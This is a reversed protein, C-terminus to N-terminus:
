GNSAKQRVIYGAKVWHEYSQQLHRSLVRPAVQLLKPTVRRSLRSPRGVFDESQQTSWCLPNLLPGKMSGELMYLAIHHLAHHKPVLLWLCQHNSVALRALLSYKRLFTLCLNGANRSETRSMFAGFSYVLRLFDNAATAAEGALRYMESWGHGETKFRHEVWEMPVTTVAGKHWGGSPYTTTSPWGVFEKSLKAIHPNKHHEKCYDLFLSSLSDFREDVSGEPQLQSLIAIFSSLFYKGVGLHWCHFLDFSWLSGTEGPTHPIRVLPSPDWNGHLDQSHMTPRWRPQDTNLEEFDFGLQGSRCLHCIGLPVRQQRRHKQVNRYSREMYGSDALFPWDGSISLVAFTFQGRGALNDTVGKHLLDEAETAVLNLLSDFVYERNGTYMLKPLACFLFRTTLTHGIFNPLLKAYERKGKATTSVGRGLLSHYSMVLFAGRKRGRGEDGHFAIPVCTGLNLLNNDALTFVPHHPAQYRYKDWFRQLIAAERKHDPKQLGVLLHTHNGNVLFNCWDRFRLVLVDEGKGEGGTDLRSQPIPLVLGHKKTLLTRCDREANRESRNSLELLGASKSAAREGVDAVVARASRVVSACSAEAM